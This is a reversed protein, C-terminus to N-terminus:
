HVMLVPMTMSQLLTLSVGGLVWERARSHGYCGMVLMDAGADAARSLLLEGVQDIPPGSLSSVPSIGQAALWGSLRGVPVEAEEEFCAISVQEARRLWPLAATVARAAERTEKWAIMVRRPSPEVAGVKPVVLVPKGSDIVLSQVFDSPLEAAGPDDDDRQGVIVLDAYLAHRAFGYGDCRLRSWAMNPADKAVAEYAAKAVKRADEDAEMVLSFTSAAGEATMPYRMLFPTAAHQGTVQAGFQRALQSALQTRVALRKSDNVHLLISRPDSM